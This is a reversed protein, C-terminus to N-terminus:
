DAQSLSARASPEPLLDPVNSDDGIMLPDEITSPEGDYYQVEINLNWKKNIKEIASKRPEFRSFRSAITGGQSASMEDVIVRERKQEQLNAVGILRYFEAWLERLHEDIKDTVYPAPSLVSNVDDLDLSEYTVVQETMSDVEQLAHKLSLEQDKSTRWVRPTKQQHINIDITRVALAIRNAMQIVDMILPYRGNNDYMLVFEKPGLKRHYNNDGFVEISIPRGYVDLKGLVNFPLAIVGMIEDEFFAVVGQRLLRKNLYAVDIVEPLNKYEFVNEALATMQRIYMRYTSLNNLQSNIVKTKM